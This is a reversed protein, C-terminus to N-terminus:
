VCFHLDATISKYFAAMAANMYPTLFLFGIGFTLISLITWGIFSFELCFLEWKHGDMILKSTAIAESATMNPNEAMLFPTMAYSLGKIIGPIIFLLTWLFIYLGRLFAQAFGQGLRHFQSFLDKFDFDQGSNQKLLISAYGLQVTGGIIFQALSLIGITVGFAALISLLSSPIYYLLEEDINMSFSGSSTILGGLLAAVLSIGVSIGWNGSLKARAISRYDSSTM